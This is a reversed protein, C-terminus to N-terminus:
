KEKKRFSKTIFNWIRRRIRNQKLTQDIKSRDLKRGRKSIKEYQDYTYLEINACFECVEPSEFDEAPHNQWGLQADYNERLLKWFHEKADSGLLGFIYFCRSATLNLFGKALPQYMGGKMLFEKIKLYVAPVQSYYKKFRKARSQESYIRHHILVDPVLSVREAFALSCTTFYVDEFMMVDPLFQINKEILFTKKFMKNWASGTTSQLIFDPYENKSTVIGDGYIKNHVTDANEYFRAKKSNYIDYKTIAIDLDNDKSKRYLKEILAPEFFDDADLFIVYEGRARKLGANRAMAPGANTETVIRVRTDAKQYEKLIDLTHDTSGDDVCIVEIDRFTQDLVSDMCPRIFDYANYVPIVVTVTVKQNETNEIIEPKDSM